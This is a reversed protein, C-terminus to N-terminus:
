CYVTLPRGLFVLIRRGLPAVNGRLLTRPVYARAVLLQRSVGPPLVTFTTSDTDAGGMASGGGRLGYAGAKECVDSCPLGGFIAQGSHSGSGAAVQPQPASTRRWAAAVAPIGAMADHSPAGLARRPIPTGAAKETGGRVPSRVRQM